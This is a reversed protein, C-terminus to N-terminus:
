KKATKIIKNTPPSPSKSLINVRATFLVTFRPSNSDDYRCTGLKRWEWSIELIRGVRWTRSDFRRGLFLPLFFYLNTAHCSIFFLSINKQMMLCTSNVFLLNRLKTNVKAFFPFSWTIVKPPVFIHINKEKERMYQVYFMNVELCAVLLISKVMTFYVWSQPPPMYVM